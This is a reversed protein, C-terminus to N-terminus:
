LIANYIQCLNKIHNGLSYNEALLSNQYKMDNLAEKHYYFYKIAEVIQESSQREVWFTNSENLIEPIAGVKTTIIACGAALAEMIVIPLGEHYSPLILIDSQRFMNTKEKGAVYGLFSIKSGLENRLRDIESKISGDVLKGCINLHFKLEPLLVLANLLELIGKERHIMGVFLLNLIDSDREPFTDVVALNHFNYLVTAQNKRLGDNVFEDRMVKSLFITKEIYNNLISISKKKFWEIRHYVTEMSGVHITMVVPIHFVQKIMKALLVDKLFLFERSTHIHVIDYKNAKLYKKVAKRQVFIYAINNLKSNHLNINLPLNLLDVSYGNLAFNEPSNIYSEIMTSVGGINRRDYTYILLIKKMVTNEVFGCNNM